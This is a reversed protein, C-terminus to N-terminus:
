RPNKIGAVQLWEALLDRCEEVGQRTISSFLAAHAARASLGARVRLLTSRQASRALKDAKALLVLVRVDGLWELLQLDLPALAHRADMVVVVGVLSARSRLYAGVLSEWQARMTRPVRAFGYGPLDVLRAVGGLDYFNITQTRGPTKSTRALNRRGLIANIASSKGVNSRGAFAVEPVTAPPLDAARAAALAFAAQEFAKM